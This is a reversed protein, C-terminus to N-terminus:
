SLHPAGASTVPCALCSVLPEAINRRASRTAATAARIAAWVPQREAHPSRWLQNLEREDDSTGHRVTPRLLPQKSM